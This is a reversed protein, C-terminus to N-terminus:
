PKSGIRRDGSLTSNIREKAVVLVAAEVSEARVFFERETAVAHASGNPNKAKDPWAADAALTM